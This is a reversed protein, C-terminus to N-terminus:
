FQDISNILHHEVFSSCENIDLIIVNIIFILLPYDILFGFYETVSEFHLSEHNCLNKRKLTFEQPQIGAQTLMQMELGM